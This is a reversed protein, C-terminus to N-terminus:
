DAPAPDATTREEAGSDSKTVEAVVSTAYCGRPLRFRLVIASPLTPHAAVSADRLAFRYARREGRLHLDPFVQRREELDLEEAAFITEEIRAAEGAARPLGPGFIPGAPSLRFSDALPQERAPDDAVTTRELDHRLLVDGDLVRDLTEFRAELCRNFMRAQYASLFLLRLRRPIKFLARFPDGHQRFARLVLAETRLRPPFSQEAEALKGEDFLQRAARIRPDQEQPAPRGLYLHLAEDCDGRVLARGLLDSDGKTGFRQAGFWNPVGRLALLELIARAREVAGDVVDRLVIEFRNGELEGIRLKHSHRASEHITLWPHTLDGLRSECGAPVSFWQTTVARSDKIGAFGVDHEAIRLARAIRQAAEHTTMGRKEVRLLLHAGEGSPDYLSLEEVRFDEPEVKLRGGTGPLANTLHRL